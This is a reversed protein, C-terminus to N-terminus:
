WLQWGYYSYPGVGHAGAPVEIFGDTKAPGVVDGPGNGIMPEARGNEALRVMRYRWLNSPATEPTTLEMQPVAAVSERIGARERLPAVAFRRATVMAAVPNGPLGLILQGEPGVAGLLPHGPRIPLNQFVTKGGCAEIATPTYDYAGVSVGGTLLVADTTALTRRLLEILVDLQDASHTPQHCDIWEPGSFMNWVSLGNSNRIQWPNVLSDPTKVEDGTTIVGVRVRRHISIRTAGFTAAAGVVAADIIRGPPVILDGGRANEGRRRINSYPTLRTGARVVVRGLSEDTDEIRVVADAGVPIAGGTYIRLAEGPRLVGPSTGTAVAGAIHLSDAVDEFRLAFGDMASLDCAPNDRDALIPEALVRGFSVDIPVIESEVPRMHISLAAVAEDPTTVVDARRM